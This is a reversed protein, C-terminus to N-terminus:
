PTVDTPPCCSLSTSVQLLNACRKAANTLRTQTEGHLPNCATMERMAKEREEGAAQDVHLYDCAIGLSGLLEGTMPCRGCTSLAYLMAHRSGRGFVHSGPM